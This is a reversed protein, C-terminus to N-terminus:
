GCGSTVRGYRGGPCVPELVGTDDETGRVCLDHEARHEQYHSVPHAAKTQGQYLHVRGLAADAGRDSCDASRLLVCVNYIYMYVSGRVHVHVHVHVHAICMNEMYMYM